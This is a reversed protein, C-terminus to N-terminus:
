SVETFFTVKRKLHAMPFNDLVRDLRHQMAHPVRYAQSLIRCDYNLEVYPTMLISNNLILGAPNTM